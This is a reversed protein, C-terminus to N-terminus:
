GSGASDSGAICAGPICPSWNYMATHKQYMICHANHMTCCNVGGDSKIHSRFLHIM